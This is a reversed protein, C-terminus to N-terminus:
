SFIIQSILSPTPIEGSLHLCVDKIWYLICVTQHMWLEGGNEQSLNLSGPYLIDDIWTGGEWIRSVRVNVMCCCGSTTNNEWTLPLSFRTHIPFIGYVRHLSSVISCFLCLFVTEGHSYWCFCEFTTRVIVRSSHNSAKQIWIGTKVSKGVEGQHSSNEWWRHFVSKM